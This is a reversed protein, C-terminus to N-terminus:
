SMLSPCTRCLERLMWASSMIQVTSTGCCCQLHERRLWTKIDSHATGHNEALLVIIKSALRRTRRDPSFAVNDVLLFELLGWEMLADRAADVEAVECFIGMCLRMLEIEPPTSDNANNEPAHKQHGTPSLGHQHHHGEGSSAATIPEFWNSDLPVAQMPHFRPLDEFVCRVLIGIAGDGIIRMKNKESKHVLLAICNVCEIATLLSSMTLDVHHLLVGLMGLEVLKEKNQPITALLNIMQILDNRMVHDPSDYLLDMVARLAAPNMMRGTRNKKLSACRKLVRVAQRKTKEDKVTTLKLLARLGGRSIIADKGRRIDGYEAFDEGISEESRHQAISFLCILAKLGDPAKLLRLKIDDLIVM